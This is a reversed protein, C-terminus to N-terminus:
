SVECTKGSRRPKPRATIKAYSTRSFPAPAVPASAQSLTDLDRGPKQIHRVGASAGYRRNVSKAFRHTCVPFAQAMEIDERAADRLGYGVPMFQFRQAQPLARARSWDLSSWPLARDPSRGSGFASSNPFRHFSPRIPNHSSAGGGGSFRQQQQPQGPQQQQSVGRSVRWDGPKGPYLRKYKRVPM